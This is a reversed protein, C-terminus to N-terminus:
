RRNSVARVTYGLHRQHQFLYDNRVQWDGDDSVFDNFCWAEKPNQVYLSSSWYALQSGNGELRSNAMLGAAPLFINNGNAGSFLLGTVGGLTTLQITTNDVLEQWEVRTPIRAPNGMNVTAADDESQLITLNDVYNDFGLMSLTCYKTIKNDSGQYFHYDNYSYGEKTSTEGWAFYDGNDEPKSAGVNHSAWLLGSPLGLDVWAASTVEPEPKKCGAFLLTALSLALIIPTFHKKTM